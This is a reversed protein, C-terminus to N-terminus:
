PNMAPLDRFDKTFRRNENVMARLILLIKRMCACQATMPKKGKAILRDHFNKVEPIKNVAHMAILYLYKRALPSGQKSLKSRRVSTGSFTNIPNMGAMAAIKNRTAYEKFSGLEAILTAASILGIGPMSELIAIEQRLENHEDIFKKIQRKLAEVNKEFSKIMNTNMRKMMPEQVTEQLNKLATQQTKYTDRIRCLECLEAYIKRSSVKFEPNRDTGFRAIAQADLQDTKNRLNLSNRFSAILAANIIMPRLSPRLELLFGETNRSYVGTSEMLVRAGITFPIPANKELQKSLAYEAYCQLIKADMWLLFKEVGALTNNFQSTPLDCVSAKSCCGEIQPFDLAAVFSKKAVDLGIWLMAESM